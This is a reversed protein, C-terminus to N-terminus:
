WNGEECSVYDEKKFEKKPFEYVKQLEKKIGVIFVRHRVQPIGYDASNILQFSVNYGASEFKKIIAKFVQGDWMTMLGRVNEILFAKPKIEILTKFMSLYLQNRPDDINRPGTLSFGQCPPGGIIIDSYSIEKLFENNGLDLNLVKTGPFNHAYTELFSKNFDIGTKISFGAEKFGQSLGGCGCFFDSVSLM